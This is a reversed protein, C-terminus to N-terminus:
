RARRHAECERPCTIPAGEFMVVRGHTKVVTKGCFCTEVAKTGITYKPAAMYGEAIRVEHTMYRIDDKM